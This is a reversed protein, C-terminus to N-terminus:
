CQMKTDKRVINWYIYYGLIVFCFVFIVLEIHFILEVYLILLIALVGVTSIVIYVLGPWFTISVQYIENVLASIAYYGGSEFIMALIFVVAYEHPEVLKTIRSRIIPILVNFLAGICVAVYLFWIQTAFGFLVLQIIVCLCGIAPLVLHDTRKAITLTFPITLVVIAVTQAISNLSVGLSDFCFPAGYLYIYYIAMQGCQIVIVSLHIAILLLLSRQIHGDRKILFVRFADKVLQLKAYTLQQFINLHQVSLNSEPQLILGLIFGALSLFFTVIMSQIFNPHQLYIGLTVLPILRSAGICVDTIIIAATRTKETTCDTVYAFSSLITLAATGFCSDFIMSLIIWLDSLNWYVIATLMGYRIIKGIFPLLILSKRGIRDCNAGLLTATIISPITSALSIYVNLRANAAQIQDNPSMTTTSLPIRSTTTTSSSSSSNHSMRTANLCLERSSVTSSSNTQYKVTYRYEIYDNLILNDINTIIMILTLFPLVRWWSPLRPPLIPKKMDNNEDM